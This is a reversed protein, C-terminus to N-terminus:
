ARDRAQVIIRYLNHHLIEVPARERRCERRRARRHERERARLMHPDVLIPDLLIVIRGVTRRYAVDSRGVEHARQHRRRRVRQQVVQLDGDVEARLWMVAEM